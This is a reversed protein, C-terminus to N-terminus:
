HTEDQCNVSCFPETCCSCITECPISCISCELSTTEKKNFWDMYEKGDLRHFAFYKGKQYWQNNQFEPSNEAARLDEFFYSFVDVLMMSPSYKMIPSVKYGAVTIDLDTMFPYDDSVVFTVVLAKGPISISSQTVILINGADGTQFFIPYKEKIAPIEKQWFRKGMRPNRKWRPHSEMKNTKFFFNNISIM